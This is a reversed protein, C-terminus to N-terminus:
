SRCCYDENNDDDRQKEGLLVWGAKKSPMSTMDLYFMSFYTNTVSKKITGIQVNLELQFPM